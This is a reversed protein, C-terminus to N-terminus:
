FSIRIGLNLTWGGVNVDVPGISPQVWHYKGELNLAMKPNLWADIGAVGYVGMTSNTDNIVATAQGASNIATPFDVDTFYIGVGGGVYPEFFPSPIIVRVGITLPVVTVSLGQKDTSYSGITGEVALAPSVRSGVGVDFNLGSDYFKLGDTDNNPEFVGIHGFFYPQGYRAHQPPPAEAARSPPPGIRRDREYRDYPDAANAATSLIASFLVALFGAAIRKM